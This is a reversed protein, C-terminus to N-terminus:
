SSWWAAPALICKKSHEAPEPGIGPCWVSRSGAMYERSRFRLCAEDVHERLARKTRWAIRSAKGARRVSRPRCGRLDQIELRVTCAM